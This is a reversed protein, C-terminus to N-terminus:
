PTREAGSGPGATIFAGVTAVFRDPDVLHLYHGYGPWEEFQVHPVLARLWQEYGDGTPLGHLSLYPATIAPGIRSALADLEAPPTSLVLDWVGLVVDQRAARRRAALRTSLEPTLRDGEMSAFIMGLADHFGDGRLADTLPTLAAAFDSFRLPQDVNVVAHVQAQAAYASVVVGGLSHGIVTPADLGADRVVAAVDQAMAIAGYDSADGSGGHGRLDLTVCRNTSIMREVVPDWDTRNDTIGHVFVVPPGSGTDQYHISM